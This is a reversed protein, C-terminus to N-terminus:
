YDEYGEDYEDKWDSIPRLEQGLANFTKGCNCTYAQYRYNYVMINKCQPCQKEKMAM